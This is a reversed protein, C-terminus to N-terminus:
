TRVGRPKSITGKEDGQKVPSTKHGDVNQSGNNKDKVIKVM